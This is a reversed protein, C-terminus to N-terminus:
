GESHNDRDLQNSIAISTAQILENMFPTLEDKEQLGEPLSFRLRGEEFCNGLSQDIYRVTLNINCDRKSIQVLATQWAGNFEFGVTFVRAM